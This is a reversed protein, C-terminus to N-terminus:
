EHIYHIKILDIRWEGEVREGREGELKVSKKNLHM